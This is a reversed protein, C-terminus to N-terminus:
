RILEPYLRDDFNVAFEALAGKEFTVERDGDQVLRNRGEQYIDIAMMDVGGPVSVFISHGTGLEADLERQLYVAIACRRPNACVAKIGKEQFKLAIQDATGEAIMKEVRDAVILQARDILTLESM